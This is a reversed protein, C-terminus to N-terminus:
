KQHAAAFLKRAVQDLPEWEDLFEKTNISRSGDEFFFDNEKVNLERGDPLTLVLFVIRWTVFAEESTAKCRFKGYALM